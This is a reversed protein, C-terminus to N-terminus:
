STATKQPHPCPPASHRILLATQSSQKGSALAFIRLSRVTCLSSDHRPMVRHQASIHKSDRCFPVPLHSLYPAPLLRYSFLSDTKIRSEKKINKAPNRSFSVFLRRVTGYLSAAMIIFCRSADAKTFIRRLIKPTQRHAGCLSVM